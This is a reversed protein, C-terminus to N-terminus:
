QVDELERGRKHKSRLGRGEHTKGLYTARRPNRLLTLGLPSFRWKRSTEAFVGLGDGSSVFIQLIEIRM